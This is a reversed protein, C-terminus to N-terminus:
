RPIRILGRKIKVTLIRRVSSNLKKRSIRGSRVAERLSRYVAPADTDAIIMDNGAIIAKVAVEGESGGAYDRIGRMELGDTIIVGKFGMEKRLYKHVAKSLTAPRKPDFADVITHEVLVMDAGARIGAAFPKLDRKRFTKMPRSDRIVEGHTDGCNGYGPFHKLTRIIKDKRMKKVTLRIFSSVDSANDAAARYYMYNGSSYTVDAVPALNTNIGLRRLFVDKKHTYSPIHDMGKRYIIDRPSSFRSSRFQRYYSARVVTGGEEDVAIMMPTHSRKQWKRITRKVSDPTEYCFDNGYLIYGGFQYKKQLALADYSPARVLMLQGVKEKVPMESLLEDAYKEADKQSVASAPPTVCGFTLIM